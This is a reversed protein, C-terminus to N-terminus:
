NLQVPLDLVSICWDHFVVLWVSICVTSFYGKNFSVHFFVVFVFYSRNRKLVRKWLSRRELCQVITLDSSHSSSKIVCSRGGYCNVTQGTKNHTM